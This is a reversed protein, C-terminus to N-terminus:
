KVTFSKTIVFKTVNNCDMVKVRYIYSGAPLGKFTMKSDLKYVNYSKASPAASAAFKKVGDTTYVSLEVSRIKSAATVVGRVTFANGKKLTGSPYVMSSTSFTANQTTFGQNVLTKTGKSDKATIKITYSGAALKSFSMKSDLKYLSYSKANPKATASFMTKGTKSNIVSVTVSSINYNSTITGGITFASKAALKAPPLYANQISLTSAPDTQAPKASSTNKKWVAYFTVTDGAVSSTNAVTTGNQYTTKEWPISAQKETLWKRNKLLDQYYWKNDSKRYVNWGVFTYGDRTFLNKTTKTDEGIIVRTDAMSGKGGNANYKVTYYADWQAYFQLVQGSKTALKSISAQDKFVAKTYGKAQKGEKYWKGTGKSNKYYWKGDSTRKVTWGSFEYGSRTFANEDLTFKGSVAASDSAMKGNGGNAKYEITYAPEWAAYLRIVDGDTKSVYAFHHGENYVVKSYGKPISKSTYWGAKGSKNKCYWKSDSTRFVTWGAFAYGKRTFKNASSAKEVGYQVKTDAMKGTGGNAQYRLTYNINTVKYKHYNYINGYRKFLDVNVNYDVPDKTGKATDWIVPYGNKLSAANDVVVWHKGGNVGVIIYYGERISKMLQAKRASANGTPWTTEAWTIRSDIKALNSWSALANKKDTYGKNNKMWTNLKDPTFSTDKVGSQILLKTFSIVACGAHYFSLEKCRNLRTNYWRPDDQAWGKWNAAQKGKKPTALAADVDPSICLLCSFVTLAALILCLTRKFFSLKMARTRGIPKSFINENYPSPAPATLFFDTKEGM